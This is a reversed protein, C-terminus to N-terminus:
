RPSAARASFPATTADDSTPLAIADLSRAIDTTWARFREREAMPVGLMECIVVVPLPYAIVGILDFAGKREVDDVLRDVIRQIGDRMEEVGTPYLVKLNELPNGNVVILDALYGTKM